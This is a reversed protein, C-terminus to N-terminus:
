KEYTKILDQKKPPITGHVATSLGAWKNAIDFSEKLMRKDGLVFAALFADGAGCVDVTKVPHATTKIYKNGFLALSGKPGLKVVINPIEFQKKLSDLLLRPRRFDLNSNVTMAENENFFICDVGRYLHHNSGRHTVQSDVYLQKQHKRSLEILHDILNKTLLGRQPDCILILDVDEVFSGILKIIKKELDADIGYNDVENVQLLKYGDVWFRTMVTTRRNKDVLFHKELKPHVFSNYYKANEDNGVISFYVLSGGLELINRAVLSAGGFSVCVNDQEAEINPADLSKGISRSYNYVDLITDGILLIKKQKFLKIIDLESM